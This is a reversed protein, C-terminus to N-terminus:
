LPDSRQMSILMAMHTRDEGDPRYHGLLTKRIDQWSKDKADIVIQSAVGTLHSRVAACVEEPDSVPYRKIYDDM